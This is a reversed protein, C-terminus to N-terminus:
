LCHADIKVEQQYGSDHDVDHREGAEGLRPQAPEGLEGGAVAVAGDM